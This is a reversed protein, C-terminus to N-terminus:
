AKNLDKSHMTLTYSRTGLNPDGLDRTAAEVVVDLLQHLGLRTGVEYFKKQEKM